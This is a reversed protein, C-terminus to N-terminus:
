YSNKGDARHGRLLYDFGMFALGLVVFNIPIFARFGYSEVQVFVFTLGYYFFIFVQTILEWTEFKNKAKLRFFLYLFYGIWMIFWHPRINYNPELTSLYGFCYIAKNFLYAFSFRGTQNIADSIGLTPFFIFNGCVLYNRIALLSILFCLLFILVIAKWIKKKNSRFYYIILIAAYILVFPFINPRTLVSLGLFLTALFQFSFKNKEFGKITFFIFLSVLFLGLNESLLKFSYYKNVDILAIVFLTILFVFGTLPKLKDRFAWYILAISFGLLINQLIYIPFIRDGFVFFCFAVFYNYLFGGPGDYVGNLSPILFGNYKIDMGFRAYKNWDDIGFIVTNLTDQFPYLRFLSICIFVAIFM